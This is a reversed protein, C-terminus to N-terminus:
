GGTALEVIPQYHLEFEGRALAPGLERELDARAIADRRMGPEFFQVAGKGNQKAAYMALDAAGILEQADHLDPGGIAAGVSASLPSARGATRSTAGIEALRASAM